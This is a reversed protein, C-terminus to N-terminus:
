VRDWMVPLSTPSRFLMDGRIHPDVRQAEDEDLRLNPLRDFLANLAVRTEMRALHMGLCVHPGTGFSVHQKPDRFIDFAEPNDYANPDRNASGLVSSVVTGAPIEIDSISTDKTTVRLTLLVPSEYRLGEEIAQPILSRDARVAELQEPHTLLLYLLNGSSRYTTEIGAPLLMRLFSFIEEEDLKEGDLESTVLDTVLDARPDQRREDVIGALYDRLESSCQVGREWDRSVNIIGVAWQQFQRYDQEPLGLVGSIVKAPFPFTYEDVLNTRGHDIFQDILEDVVRGVLSNEWRALTRQRFAVSVLARHRHHEPPDMGVIIKRGWVEGMGELIVASSFTEHDRLVRTVDAHRYVVYSAAAGEFISEERIVPSHERLQVFDPYPDRVDGAMASDFTDVRADDTSPAERSPVLRVPLREHRRVMLSNVWRPAHDLDVTISSTRELLVTLVNRAEIRALHAGVCHHIGRGFSVHHRPAQRDLVVEDPREFEVPDRNAAGWLLLVTSGAPIDVGGLTTDKPVSRMHYRFPPELRLAEEVFTPIQEPHHRLHEQLEQHEALIRVANGLLSATSEGGASLLTHLIGGAEFNDFVGAGVGRAVAGLLDDGPEQMAISLQDAIWAQIEGSRDILELLEDLTLTSGLMATSDFAARLLQDLNSEHFGILRSIMTIPVVNGIVTMFEVTEGDLARTVCGNAIDVVDPELQAMRKAVLEPFVTNRHLAHAPPDATALAQVGADGFPLRCPLGTEDRYLLCQINSSFDEVRGAAEALLEFTSVTFLGTGSIEWVPAEGRLRRYLPYPDAITQPDLLLTGSIGQTM